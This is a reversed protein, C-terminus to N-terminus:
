SKLKLIPGSVFCTTFEQGFALINVGPGTEKAEPENGVAPIMMM